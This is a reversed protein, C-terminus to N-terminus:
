KREMVQPDDVGDARYKPIWQNFINVNRDWIVDCQQTIQPLPLHPFIFRPTYSAFELILMMSIPNSLKCRWSALICSFCEQSLSCSLSTLNEEHYWSPTIRFLPLPVFPRKRYKLTCYLVNNGLPTSKIVHWSFFYPDSGQMHLWHWQTWNWPCIDKAEFAVLIATLPLICM